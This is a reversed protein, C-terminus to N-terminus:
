HLQKSTASQSGPGGSSGWLFVLAASPKVPCGLDLILGLRGLGHLCRGALDQTNKASSNPWLTGMRVCIYGIGAEWYDRVRHFM